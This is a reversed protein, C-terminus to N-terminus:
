DYVVFERQQMRVVLVPCPAARVVREAISGVLFHSAGTRGHSGVILLDIQNKHAYRCIQRM